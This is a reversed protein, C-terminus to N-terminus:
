RIGEKTHFDSIGQNSYCSLANVWNSGTSLLQNDKAIQTIVKELGQQTHCTIRRCRGPCETLLSLRSWYNKVQPDSGM